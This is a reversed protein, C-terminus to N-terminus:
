DTNWAAVCLGTTNNVGVFRTEGADLWFYNDEVTFTHLHGPRDIHVGVAPREGTNTVAIGTANASWDLTTRPLTFLCDHVAEFNIWYFTRGPPAGERHVDVVVLLPHTQTQAAALTFTGLTNVRDMPGRGAFSQRKVEELKADFARVLVQWGCARLTDADDLLVIPLALNKGAANFTPFLACAHLPAFADQFIYHAIKPAGYWDAFSWSAAPYNDNAKYYLAGTCHPWRSRALELTHRVGTAQAVQSGRIFDRMTRGATFYGACIRLHKLDGKNFVPTHHAFSGDEPPPWLEKEADPLYRQVSEHVPLSAIGFEGWFDATLSLMREIPADGWYVDYNHVSGGWPEGRHFPRTGDMEVAARAMMDIVRGIPMPSENGAGWMVLSPHNRLRPTNLRVTEELPEYPQREHSDWATPWEQMVMIGFRDCLDYFDDTEPMGSGWGRLMQCHQDRALTLFRAYRARSFDLSSDMTCWGSGKVFMPRDNIVFTWNYKKPDPGGPLPAMAVTRIGFCFAAAHTDQFSLRLRYLNPAGMDNPWWLRPNPITFRLHLRRTGCGGSLQKHFVFAEGDFNDPILAGRLTGSWAPLSSELDAVLEMEGRHANRTAVFPAVLRVAPMNELRVSRWIGLPPISSYHWGYSNNVTVTRQWDPNVWDECRGPAPDVRVILTNTDGPQLTVEFSPGGFMGEHSGLLVGNLWVTCRNAVGDFVLRTAEAGAPRAFVCRYWWTQFSKNHAIQDNRGFKPDPIRGARELALHVSGPVNAPFADPWHAARVREEETGNEALEWVGDLALPAVDAVSRDTAADRLPELTIEDAPGDLPSPGPKFEERDLEDMSVPRLPHIRGDNGFPSLDPVREGVARDLRWLGVTHLDAEFPGTPLGAIPRVINSLRIEEILGSCTEQWGPALPTGILLPEHRTKMAWPNPKLIPVPDQTDDHGDIFIRMRHGDFTVALYHWQDDCVAHKSVVCNNPWDHGSTRFLLGYTGAGSSLERTILKWNHETTNTEFAAVLSATPLLRAWLEITYPAQGYAERWPITIGAQRAHLARGFRGEVLIPAHLSM